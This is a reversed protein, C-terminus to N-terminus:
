CCLVYQREANTLYALKGQSDIIVHAPGRGAELDILDDASMTVADFILLRGGQMAAHGAKETNSKHEAMKTDALM